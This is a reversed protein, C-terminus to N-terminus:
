EAYVFRFVCDPCVVRCTGCNVCKSEDLVVYRFGALNLEKGISLAGKPCSAVCYQCGKCWETKLNEKKLVAKM